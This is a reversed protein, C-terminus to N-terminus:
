TGGGPLPGHIYAFVDAKEPTISRPGADMDM